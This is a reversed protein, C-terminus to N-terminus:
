YKAYLKGNRYMTIHRGQYVIAIQVFEDPGATEKPWDAQSKKTRSFGNSGPMWVSTELEAFVVGDFSDMTTDNITIASGGKQTLNAPAAWVVLTKDTIKIKKDAATVPVLLVAALVSALLCTSFRTILEANKKM